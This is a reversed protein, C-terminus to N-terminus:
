IVSSPTSVLEGEQYYLMSSSLAMIGTRQPRERDALRMFTSEPRRGSMKVETSQPTEPEELSDNRQTQERSESRNSGREQLLSVKFGFGHSQGNHFAGVYGFKAGPQPRRWGLGSLKGNEYLGISYSQDSKMEAAFGQLINSAWQGQIRSGLKRDLLLGLGHRRPEGMVIDVEGFYDGRKDGEAALIAGVRQAGSYEDVDSQQSQNDRSMMLKSMALLGKSMKRKNGNPLNTDAVSTEEKGLAQDVLQQHRTVITKHQVLHLEEAREFINMGYGAVAFRSDQLAHENAIKWEDGMEMDRFRRFKERLDTVPKVADSMVGKAAQFTSSIDQKLPLYYMHYGPWTKVDPLPFKKAIASRFEAMSRAKDKSIKKAYTVLVQVVQSLGHEFAADMLVEFETEDTDAVAASKARKIRGRRIKNRDLKTPAPASESDSSDSDAVLYDQLNVQQVQPPRRRAGKHWNPGYRLDQMYSPLFEHLEADLGGHSELLFSEKRKRIMEEEEEELIKMREVYDQLVAESEEETEFELLMLEEVATRVQEIRAMAKESQVPDKERLEEASQRERELSNEEEKKEWQARRIAERLRKHEAEVRAREEEEERQQKRIAAIKDDREKVKAAMGRAVKDLEAWLRKSEEDVEEPEPEPVSKAIQTQAPAHM